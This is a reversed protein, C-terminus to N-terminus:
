HVERELGLAHLEAGVRPPSPGVLELAAAQEALVLQKVLVLAETDRLGLTLDGTLVLVGLDDRWVVLV